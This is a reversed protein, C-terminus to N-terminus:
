IPHAPFYVDEPVYERLRERCFDMMEEELDRRYSVMGEEEALDASFLPEEPYLDFMSKYMEKPLRFPGFTVSHVDEARVRDFVSRFLNEYRERFNQSYILPDFRIGLTWGEKQLTEMARIREEVPPAGHELEEAVAPPTLSWAVVCRDFPEQERLTDLKVSKTRLEVWGRDLDRFFPLFSGSFETIEDLVLSDNVHGSFFYPEKGGTEVADRIATQFDDYNVFVVYHASDYMGQLFCYRCDYLCNMMHSFYYYRHPPSLECYEPAELVFNEHKRALILAPNNKQLRFNQSKRNFVEGYRECTLVDAEPFRERISATRPHDTVDEEVYIRDIM